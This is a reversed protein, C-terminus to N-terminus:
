RFHLKRKILIALYETAKPRVEHNPYKNVIELLIKKLTEVSDIHGYSLAQLFKFRPTLLNEGHNKHITEYQKIV